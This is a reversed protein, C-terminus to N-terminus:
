SKHFEFHLDIDFEKTIFFNFGGKKGSHRAGKYKSM